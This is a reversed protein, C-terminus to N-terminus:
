LTYYKKDMPLKEIMVIIIRLVFRFIFLFILNSTEM